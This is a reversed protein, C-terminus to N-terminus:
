MQFVTHVLQYLKIDRLKEPICVQPIDAYVRLIEAGKDSIQWIFALNDTETYM